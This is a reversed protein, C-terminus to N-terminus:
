YHTGVNDDSWSIIFSSPVGAALAAMVPPQRLTEAGAVAVASAALVALAQPQHMATEVVAEGAVSAAMAQLVARIPGGAAGAGAASVAMAQSAGQFLRAVVAGVAM